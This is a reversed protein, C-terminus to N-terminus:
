SSQKWPTAATNQRHLNAAMEDNSKQEQRQLQHQWAKEKREAYKQLSALEREAHIVQQQCHEGQLQLRQLVGNQFAVANDLKDLFQHQTRLLTVSIGQTARQSWRQISEATYGQLQLMQQQAQQLERQAQGLAQLAEDRRQTCVELVTTLQTPKNM